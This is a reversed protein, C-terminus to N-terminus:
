ARGASRGPRRADIMELVVKGTEYRRRVPPWPRAASQGDVDIARAAQLVEGFVALMRESRERQGARIEELLEGAKNHLTNMRMRLMAVLDDRAQVRARHLLCVELVIRRVVAFDGM